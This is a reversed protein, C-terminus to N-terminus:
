DDPEDSDTDPEDEDYIDFKEAELKAAREAPSLWHRKLNNMQETHTAWRCNLVRKGEDDIIWGYWKYPDIRDLTHKKTPAPGMDKIFANWADEVAIDFKNWERCVGIAPTAGGYHKYAVHDSFYCRRHMMYWIGRERPYPNVGEKKKCGCHRRPFETRVLYWQPLTIRKGCTCECLWKQGGSSGSLTNVRKLIELDGFMKGVKVPNAKKRRHILKNPGKNTGLKKKVKPKIAM